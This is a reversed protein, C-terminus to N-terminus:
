PQLIIKGISRGSELLEHATRAECLALRHSIRPTITRNALQEILWTMGARRKEPWRDFMHMSFVRVAPSKVVHSRMAKFLEGSPRGALKGFNVVLGFPALLAFNKAFEPGGVPDLILDVGRPAVARVGESIEQRSRDIVACVGLERVMAAKAEGSCVAIVDLGMVRALDIIATGIGGAAGYLLAVQGKQARACDFLLHYAVQYNALTAAQELDTGDPLAFVSSAATVNFEAYCGGRHVGERASVIVHQGRRLDRVSSGVDEIIGSMETGPVAPLPPMWDYAGSRILVDAMSVGISHARVLVDDSDITPVPIDVCELVEPPGPQRLRIVKM